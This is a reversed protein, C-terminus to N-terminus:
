GTQLLFEGLSGNDRYVFPTDTDAHQRHFLAGTHVAPFADRDAKYSAVFHVWGRIDQFMGPYGSAARRGDSLLLTLVRREGTGCPVLTNLFRTL